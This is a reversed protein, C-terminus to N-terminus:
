LDEATTTSPVYATGIVSGRRQRNVGITARRQSRHNSANETGSYGSSGNGGKALQLQLQYHADPDAMVKNQQEAWMRKLAGEDNNELETSVAAPEVQLNCGYDEIRV